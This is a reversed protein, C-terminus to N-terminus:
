APILPNNKPDTVDSGQSTERDYDVRKTEDGAARNEEGAGVQVGLLKATESYDVLQGDLWTNLDAKASAPDTAATAFAGIRRDVFARQKTDLKREAALAGFIQGISVKVVEAKAANIATEHAKEAEMRATREEALVKEIRKAHEYETQKEARVHAVVSPQKVLVDLVFLDEPTFNGTQIAAILEERTM